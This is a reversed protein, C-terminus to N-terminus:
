SHGDSLMPLIVIYIQLYSLVQLCLLVTPNGTAFWKLFHNYVTGKVPNPFPCPASTSCDTLNKDPKNAQYEKKRKKEEKSLIHPLPASSDLTFLNLSPLTLSALLSNTSPFQILNKLRLLQPFFPFSSPLLLQLFTCMNSWKVAAWDGAIAKSLHLARALSTMSTAHIHSIGCPM